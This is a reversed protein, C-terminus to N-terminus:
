LQSNIDTAPAAVGFAPVGSGVCYWYGATFSHDFFFHCFSQLRLFGDATPGAAPDAVVVVLVTFGAGAAATGALGPEVTSVLTALAVAAPVTAVAAVPAALLWHLGAGTEVADGAAAAVPAVEAPAAAEATAPATGDAAPRTLTSGGLTVFIRGWRWCGEDVQM